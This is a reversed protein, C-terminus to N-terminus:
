ITDYNYNYKSNYRQDHFDWFEKAGFRFDEPVIKAKYYYVSDQWNNTTSANHVYLATYDDTIQDMINCFLKFDPIISCYNEWLIKRNRLVTERLIFIGDYNTRIVPKVDLAYQLSLIYLIAYHRGKKFMAHQLPRNFIKPDDTCDDLLIVAWPNPLYQKAIKQRKIFSLMQEEKYEKYVFLPPIIKEYFGNSDESGSTAVAVPIIHRKSYLIDAILTSKGTNHVVSFDSLLFRGDGTLTFGYYNDENSPIISFNYKYHTRLNDWTFYIKNNYLVPADSTRTITINKDEDIVELGVIRCLTIAQNIDKHDKSVIVKDRLVVHKSNEVIRSIESLYKLTKHYPTDLSVRFWKYKHKDELELYDPLAIDIIDENENILTLIHDKNVTIIEGTEIKINYMQQFGRCIDLVHRPKSDYGMIVDGVCIHEVNEFTGNYKLIKTGKAFCGPKGVVIIKSGGKGDVDEIKNPRILDLNLEKISIETM